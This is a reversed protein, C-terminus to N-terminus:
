PINIPSVSSIGPVHQSCRRFGRFFSSHKKSCTIQAVFMPLEGVFITTHRPYWPSITSYYHFLIFYYHFMSMSPIFYYHFMFPVHISCSHFIFPVNTSLSRDFIAPFAGFKGHLDTAPFDGLSTLCGLTKDQNEVASSLDKGSAAPIPLPIKHCYNKSSSPCLGWIECVVSYTKRRKSEDRCWFTIKKWTWSWINGGTSLFIMTWIRGFKWDRLFCELRWEMWCTSGEQELDLDWAWLSIVMKGPVLYCWCWVGPKFREVDHFVVM